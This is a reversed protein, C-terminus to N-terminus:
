KRLKVMLELYCSDRETEKGKDFYWDHFDKGGFWFRIVPIGENDPYYAERAKEITMVRDENVVLNTHGSYKYNQTRQYPPQLM